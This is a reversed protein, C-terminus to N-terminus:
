NATININVGLADTYRVSLGKNIYYYISIGFNNKEIKDPNGFRMIIEDERILGIRKTEKSSLVIEVVKNNAIRYGVNNTTHIWGASNKNENIVSSPIKNETDGIAIGYVLIKNPNFNKNFLYESHTSIEIKSNSLYLYAGTSIAIIIILITVILGKKNKM